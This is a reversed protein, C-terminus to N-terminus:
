AALPRRTTTRMSVTANVADHFDAAVDRWTRLPATAIARERRDRWAHDIAVKRVAAAVAETNEPDVYEALDGCVEPLSSAQSTVCLRGFWAAEGVPLGWGEYLSPYISALSQEHLYAMDHDDAGHILHVREQLWPHEALRKFFLDNKWGRRGCFVVHPTAEGLESRLRLLADLVAGGNKRVELTGVCLLFPQSLAGLDLLRPDSPRCGRVNRPYRAFEHALPVVTSRVQRGRNALFIHLDAQTHRSVCVFETAHDAVAAMYRGFEMCSKEAFYRPEVLPILDHVCHVIRGGRRAHARIANTLAPHRWGAGLFVLSAQGPLEDLHLPPPLPPADVCHRQRERERSAPAVVAGAYLGLKLAGRRWGRIELRNLHRRVEGRSPWWRGPPGDALRMLIRVHDGADHGLIDHLRWARCGRGAPDFAVCWAAASTPMRALEGLLRVQVRQIGTVTEHATLYSLLDTIDFYTQEM